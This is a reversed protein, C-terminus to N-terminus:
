ELSVQPVLALIKGLLFLLNVRFEVKISTWCNLKLNQVLGQHVHLLLVGVELLPQRPVLGDSRASSAEPHSRTM